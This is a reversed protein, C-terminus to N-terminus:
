RPLYIHLYRNADCKRSWVQLCRSSQSLMQGTISPGHSTETYETAAVSNKFAYSTPCSPRQFGLSM